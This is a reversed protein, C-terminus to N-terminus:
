PAWARVAFALAASLGFFLVLNTLTVTLAVRSKGMDSELWSTLAPVKVALFLGAYLVAAIAAETPAYPSQGRELLRSFWPSAGGPLFYVWLVSAGYAAIDLVTCVLLGLRMRVKLVLAYFAAEIMPLAVFLAAVTWVTALSSGDGAEPEAAALAPSLMLLLARAAVRGRMERPAAMHM